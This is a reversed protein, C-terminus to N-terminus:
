GWVVYNMTPCFYSSNVSVTVGTSSYSVTCGSVASANTKGSSGGSGGSPVAYEDWGLDGLSVFGTAETYYSAPHVLYPDLVSASMDATFSGPLTLEAPEYDSATSDPPDFYAMSGFLHSTTVTYTGGSGSSGRSSSEYYGSATTSSDFAWLSMLNSDGDFYYRSSVMMFGKPTFSTSITYVRSSDNVTGTQVQSGGTAAYVYVGHSNPYYGAAFSKSFASTTSPTIYIYGSATQEAMTGTLLAGSNNYATYGSRIYPATATTTTSLLNGAVGAITTGYKITNAAPALTGVVKQGKVYATYGSQIMAATATADSTYTGTVGAIVAGQQILNKDPVFTGTVKKGNIYATYGNLITSASATADSTDMITTNHATFVGSILNPGLYLAM